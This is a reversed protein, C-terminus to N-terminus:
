NFCATKYNILLRRHIFLVAYTAIPVLINLDFCTVYPVLNTFQDNCANLDKGINIQLNVQMSERTVWTCDDIQRQTTDNSIIVYVNLVKPKM